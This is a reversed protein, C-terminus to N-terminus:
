MQKGKHRNWEWTDETASLYWGCLKSDLIKIGAEWWNKSIQIKSIRIARAEGGKLHQFHWFSIDLRRPPFFELRKPMILRYAERIELEPLYWIDTGWGSVGIRNPFCLKHSKGRLCQSLVSVHWFSHSTWCHPLLNRFNISCVNHKVSCIMKILGSHYSEPFESISLRWCLFWEWWRLRNGNFIWIIINM